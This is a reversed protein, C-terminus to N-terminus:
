SPLSSKVTPRLCVHSHLWFDGFIYGSGRITGVQDWRTEEGPHTHASFRSNSMTGFIAPSVAQGWCRGWRIGGRQPLHTSFVKSNSMSGLIAPSVAQLQLCPRIGADDGGSGAEGGQRPAHTSFFQFQVHHWFDRSIRGSGLMTGAQDWRAEESPYTHASFRTLCIHCQASFVKSNSMSALTAPSIAQDWYRGRRIGSRRAQKSLYARALFRSNPMSGLIVLRLEFNSSLDSAPQFGPSQM